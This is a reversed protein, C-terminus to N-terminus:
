LLLSFTMSFELNNLTGDVNPLYRGFPKGTVHNRVDFRIGYMFFNFKVGGGYNYGFKTDGYGSFSSIGPLFFSSFGGGGTVFPRVPMGTPLAHLALNYYMHHSRVAGLDGSESAGEGSSLFNLNAHQYAYSVEHGIFAMTNFVMRGGVRVGNSITYEERVERAIDAMTDRIGAVSLSNDGFAGYGGTIGLEASQPTAPVALLAVLACCLLAIRM